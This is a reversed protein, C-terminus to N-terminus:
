EKSEADDTLQKGCLPCYKAPKVWMETDSYRVGGIVKGGSECCECKEEKKQTGFLKQILYAIVAIVVIGLILLLVTVGQGAGEAATGVAETVTTEPM